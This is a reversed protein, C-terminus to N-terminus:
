TWFIGLKWFTQSSFGPTAFSWFNLLVQLRHYSGLFIWVLIKVPYIVHALILMTLALLSGWHGKKQRLLNMERIALIIYLICPPIFNLSRSISLRVTIFSFVTFVIGHLLYLIVVWQPTSYFKNKSRLYALFNWIISKKEQRM